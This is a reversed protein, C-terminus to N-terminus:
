FMKPAPDLIALKGDKIEMVALARECTGDPKLRYLGSAPGVFGTTNTLAEPGFNPGGKALALSTALTVADYALGALRKPKYGYVSEFRKDFENSSSPPASALWAGQMQPIARVDEDDWAGTGILRLGKKDMGQANLSKLLQKLTDGGEAMFLAQFPLKDYGQRIRVGAAELNSTTKAYSEIPDVRIGKTTLSAKLADGVARGYADSPVLAAFTALKKVAAYEAVRDVQQEPLYGYVYTNKGAIQRNNSFSIVPINAKEAVPVVASVATTALPGLILQAGQQLVQEAAATATSPSLGTDKPLLVLKVTIREPPLMVYQDYLALSAADLMSQGLSQTEGSLPLMLAVKVIPINAPIRYSPDAFASFLKPAQEVPAQQAPLSSESIPPPTTTVRPGRPKGSSTGFPACGSTVALLVACLISLRSRFM